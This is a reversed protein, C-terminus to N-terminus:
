PAVRLMVENRRMFPPTWPPDFYGFVSEGTPTLKERQMWATLTAVANTENGANRRGSFRLVAFKGAPISGVAVKDNSPKPVKEAPMKEPMVFAMSGGTMFVPTTMAIKQTAVNQGDIYRFLRMFSGDAERMSTQVIALTPYERLEYDGDTRVVRYPATESGARTGTYAVGTAVAALGIALSKM